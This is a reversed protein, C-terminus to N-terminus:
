FLDYWLCGMVVWGAGGECAVSEGREVRRNVSDKSDIAARGEAGVKSQVEIAACAMERIWGSVVMPSMRAVWLLSWELTVASDVPTPLLKPDDM